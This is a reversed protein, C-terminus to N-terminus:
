ATAVPRWEFWMGTCWHPVLLVFLVSSGLSHGESGGYWAESEAVASVMRMWEGEDGTVDDHVGEGM